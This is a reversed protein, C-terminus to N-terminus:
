RDLNKRRIKILFQDFNERDDNSPVGLVTRSYATDIRDFYDGITGEIEGRDLEPPLDGEEQGAKKLKILIKVHPSKFHTNLVEINPEIKGTELVYSGAMLSRMVYLYKEISKKKGTRIFKEYNHTALGKYSRYIGEKNLVFIEKLDLFDSTTYIQKATIMELINANGAITLDLVKKLEHLVIDYEGIKLEIVDKPESMRLLVNTNYVFVGRIDFDSDPSEFGYLHSGSLMLSFLRASRKGLENKIKAIIDIQKELEM